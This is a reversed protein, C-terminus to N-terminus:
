GELAVFGVRQLQFEVSVDFEAHPFKKEWEYDEYDQQTLFCRRAAEGFGAPDAQYDQATKELFHTIANKIEKRATEEFENVHGDIPDQVSESVLEAELFVKVSVRPHDPMIKVTKKPRRSQSMQVTVPKDSHDGTHFTVYNNQYQGTLINYLEGEIESMVGVMKDRKFIAMGMIESPNKKEIDSQGAVYQYLHYEFGSENLPTKTDGNSDLETNQSEQDKNDQGENNKNKELNTQNVGTIPLVCSKYDSKVQCYFDQIMNKPVFGSYQSEFILHYYNVPNVEAVPKVAELYEKAKGHSVALYINPRIDSNRGIADSLDLVGKRAIEESIVFLKTHALTFRKSVSHNALNIGSYITPAKIAILDTIENGAKGGEESSGGSIQTTKAFQITFEYIGDQDTEDIGMAVVYAIENPEVADYCGCLLFCALAWGLMRYGKM